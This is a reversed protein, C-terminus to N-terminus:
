RIQLERAPAVRPIRVTDSSSQRTSRSSGEERHSHRAHIPECVQQVSASGTHALMTTPAVRCFAAILNRHLTLQTHVRGRDHGSFCGPRETSETGVSSSAAKSCLRSHGEANNRLVSLPVLARCFGFYFWTSHRELQLYSWGLSGPRARWGARFFVKKGSHM